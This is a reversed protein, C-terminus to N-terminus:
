FDFPSAAMHALLNFGLCKRLFYFYLPRLRLLANSKCGVIADMELREDEEELVVPVVERRRRSAARSLVSRQSTSSWRQGPWGEM